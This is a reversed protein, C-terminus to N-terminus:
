SVEKMTFTVVTAIGVFTFTLAYSMVVYSMVDHVENATRSFYKCYLVNCDM